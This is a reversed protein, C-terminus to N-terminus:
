YNKGKVFQRLFFPTMDPPARTLHEKLLNGSASHASEDSAVDRWYDLLAQLLKNCFNIVDARHLVTATIQSVFASNDGPVPKSSTSTKCRSM